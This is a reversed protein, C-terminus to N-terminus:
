MLTHNRGESSGARDSRGLRPLLKFQHRMAPKIEIQFELVEVCEADLPTHTIGCLHCVTGATAATAISAAPRESNLEGIVTDLANGTSEPLAGM